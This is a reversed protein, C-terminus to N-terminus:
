PRDRLDARRAELLPLVQEPWEASHRYLSAVATNHNRIAEIHDRAAGVALQLGQLVSTIETYGLEYRAELARLAARTSEVRAQGSEIALRSSEYRAHARMVESGVVLRQRAAEAEMREAEARSVNAEAAHLGGDFILWEFGIGVAGDVRAPRTADDADSRAERSIGGVATLSLSPWNRRLQATAQWSASTARARSVRIEERLAEAQQLTEALSLTWGPTTALPEDPLVLSGPPLGMAVALEASLGVVEQHAAILDELQDLQESRIQEVDAISRLGANFLAESRAVQWTTFRYIEEVSEILQLLAQLDFYRSSLELVLDRAAIDFLLRSGEVEAEAARIAAGRAPDLFTWEIALVPLVEYPGTAGGL